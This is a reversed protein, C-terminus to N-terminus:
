HADERQRDLVAEQRDVLAAVVRLLAFSPQARRALSPPYREDERAPADPEFENVWGPRRRRPRPGTSARTRTRRAAGEPVASASSLLPWYWRSGRSGCSLARAFRFPGAADTSAAPGM